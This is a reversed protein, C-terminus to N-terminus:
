SSVRHAQPFPLITATRDSAPAFGHAEPGCPGMEARLPAIFRPAGDEPHTFKRCNLGMVHRCDSCHKKPDTM